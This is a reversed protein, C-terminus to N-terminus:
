AGHKGRRAKGAGRRVTLGHFALAAAIVTDDHMGAPASYRFRGSQMRDMTYAQLESVLVPDNVIRLEEKEFALALSEILPPKSQATTQFGKVPLGERQLAEVNPDGMSNTEAIIRYPKWKAALAALRGRQLTWGIENFREIHVLERTTKNLIAIATFDHSKGWDVGFIYKHQPHPPTGLRVTACAKINRFVAGGDALFQALYEQEFTRQPLLDRAAEIESPVIHPNSSTPMQWSAWETRAPDQGYAFARWFWNQGRPTSIFLARGLRDSLAPRLDQIWADEPVLAAEDIILFDLGEGLLSAGTNATKFAIFGGGPYVIERDGRRIEVGPIQKSIQSVGRWGRKTVDYTPAVWWV